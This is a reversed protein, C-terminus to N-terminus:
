ATLSRLPVIKAARQEIGDLRDGLRQLATEVQPRYRSRNYTAALPSRIDAHNLAAEVVHPPEGMEGLLTAGTRRLDHRSWGGTGSARQVAKTERDWNDIPKGTFSHFVLDGPAGSGISQLLTAAQRSLPVTHPEGNKTRAGPITWTRATLDIERWRADAAEDRRALTLLLFRLAPVHPKALPFVPAGPAGPALGRLLGLAAPSLSLTHITVKGTARTRHTLTGAALDIQRWHLESLDTHGTLAVFHRAAAHADTGARLVPLLASLETETLVRKRRKAAEPARVNSLASDALGLRAAWKLVPRLTRVAFSASPAARYGEAQMQLGASTLSAVPRSLFPAFVRRVSIVSRGWSKLAAGRKQGYLDLLAAFTGDGNKAAEAQERARRRSAQREAIPDLGSKVQGYLIRARDRAASVGLAPWPGVPFRRAYAHNPVRCGLIWSAAGAPTIRLRLGPCGIDALERRVGSAIADEIAKLVIAETLRAPM